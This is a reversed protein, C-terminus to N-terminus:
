GSYEWIDRPSTDERGEVVLGYWPEEVGALSIDMCRVLLGEAEGKVLSKVYIRFGARVLLVALEIDRFTAQGDPREGEWGEVVLSMANALHLLRGDVVFVWGRRLTQSRYKSTEKSLHTISRMDADALADANQDPGSQMREPLATIYPKQTQRGVSVQAGDSVIVVVEDDTVSEVEGAVVGDETEFRYWEGAVVEEWSVMDLGLVNTIIGMGLRKAATWIAEASEGWVPTESYDTRETWFRKQM